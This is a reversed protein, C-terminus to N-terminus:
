PVLASSFEGSNASFFYNGTSIVQKVLLISTLTVKRSRHWPLYTISWPLKDMVLNYTPRNYYPDQGINYDIDKFGDLRIDGCGPFGNGLLINTTAFLCTSWGDFKPKTRILYGMEFIVNGILDWIEAKCVSM